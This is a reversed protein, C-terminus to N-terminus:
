GFCMPTAKQHHNTEQLIGIQPVGGTGGGNHHSLAPGAGVELALKLYVAM